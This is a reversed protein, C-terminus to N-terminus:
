DEPEESEEAVFQQALRGVPELARDLAELEAEREREREPDPAEQGADQAQQRQLEVAAIAASM